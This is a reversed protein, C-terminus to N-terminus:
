GNIILQIIKGNPRMFIINEMTDLDHKPTYNVIEYGQPPVYYNM